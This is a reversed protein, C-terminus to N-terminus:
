HYHYHYKYRMAMDEAKLRGRMESNEETGRDILPDQGVGVVVETETDGAQQM